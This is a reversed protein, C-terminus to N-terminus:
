PRVFRQRDVKGLVPSSDTTSKRNHSAPSKRPFPYEPILYQPMIDFFSTIPPRREPRCQTLATSPVLYPGFALRPGLFYHYPKSGLYLRQSAPDPHIWRLEFSELSPAHIPHRQASLEMELVVDLEDRFHRFRPLSELVLRTLKHRDSKTPSAHITIDIARPRTGSNSLWM